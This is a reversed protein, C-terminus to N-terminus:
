SNMAEALKKLKGRVSGDIVLDGARLVVGGILSNDVESNISVDRQLRAKLSEALQQQAEDALPFATLVDVAVTREQNAKLREFLVVIDPTLGLRKHQALIRIFNQVQGNLEEGCLDIVIQAQQQGTLSPRSLATTVKEDSIVAATQKLMVSWNGLDGSA